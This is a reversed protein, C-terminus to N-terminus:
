TDAREFLVRQVEPYTLSAPLEGTLLVEATEFQLVTEMEEVHARYLRGFGTKGDSTVSYDCLHNLSSRIVGAEEYLERVAAQDATEGPEIHGAPMEWSIRQHLRVFIWQGRYSAAMVVYTLRHEPVSGAPLLVTEVSAKLLIPNSPNPSSTLFL